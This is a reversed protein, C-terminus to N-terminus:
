PNRRIGEDAFDIELSTVEGGRIRISRQIAQYDPTELRLVHTGPPLVIHRLSGTVPAGDITIDAPSVSSLRLTGSVPGVAQGRAM